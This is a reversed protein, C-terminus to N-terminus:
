RVRYARSLKIFYKLKPFKKLISLKLSDIKNEFLPALGTFINLIM